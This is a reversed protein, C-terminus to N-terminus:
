SRSFEYADMVRQRDKHLKIWYIHLQFTCYVWQSGYASKQLKRVTYMGYIIVWVNQCRPRGTSSKQTRLDTLLCRRGSNGRGISLDSIAEFHLILTIPGIDNTTRKKCMFSQHQMSDLAQFLSKMYNIWNELQKHYFFLDLVTVMHLIEYTMIKWLYSVPLNRQWTFKIDSSKKWPFLFLCM